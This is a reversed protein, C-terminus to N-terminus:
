EKRCPLFDTNLVDRNNDLRWCRFNLLPLLTSESTRLKRDSITKNCQNRKKKLYYYYHCSRHNLKRQSCQVRTTIVVACSLFVICDVNFRSLIKQFVTWSLSVLLCWLLTCYGQFGVSLFSPFYDSSSEDIQQETPPFAPQFSSRFTSDWRFDEKNNRVESDKKGGRWFRNRSM